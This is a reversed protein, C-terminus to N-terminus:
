EDFCGRWRERQVQFLVLTILVLFPMLLQLEIFAIIVILAFSFILCYKIAQFTRFIRKRRNDYVASYRNCMKYLRNQNFYERVLMFCSIIVVFIISALLFINVM